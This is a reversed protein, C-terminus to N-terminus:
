RDIPYGVNESNEEYTPQTQGQVTFNSPQLVMIIYKGVWRRDLWTQHRAFVSVKKPNAYHAVNKRAIRFPNHTSRHTPM